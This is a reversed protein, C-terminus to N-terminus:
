ETSTQHKGLKATTMLSLSQTAFIFIPSFLYLLLALLYLNFTFKIERINMDVCVCMHVGVCM